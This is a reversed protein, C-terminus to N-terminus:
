QDNKLQDNNFLHVRLTDLASGEVSFIRTEM